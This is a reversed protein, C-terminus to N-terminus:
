ADESINEFRAIGRRGILLISAKEDGFKGSYSNADSRVDKAGYFFEVAIRIKKGILGAEKYVTSKIM